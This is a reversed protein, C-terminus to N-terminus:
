INKKAKARALAALLYDKSEISSTNILPQKNLTKNALRKEHSYYRKRAKDAKERENHENSIPIVDICDVPCAPICLDCGTCHDTLVTHMTKSSGLIADVPCVQICKTCGICEAERISVVSSNKAKDEMAPLLNTIDQQLLSGLERLVRTGGPLCLDLTTEHNAIAEAYPMCGAYNCLGCQTQPLVADIQEKTAKSM